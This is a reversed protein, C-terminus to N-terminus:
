TKQRGNEFDDFVIFRFGNRVSERVLGENSMQKLMDYYRPKTSFSRFAYKPIAGQMLLTKVIYGRAGEEYDKQRTRKKDTKEEYLKRKAKLKREMMQQQNRQNKILIQGHMKYGKWGGFNSTQLGDCTVRSKKM